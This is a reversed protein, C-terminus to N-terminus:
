SSSRNSKEQLKQRKLLREKIGKSDIWFDKGNFVDHIEQETLFYKLSKKFFEKYIKDHFDVSWKLENGKGEPGGSYWHIMMSANDGVELISGALFIFTAASNCIGDIRTTIEALSEEIINTLTLATNMYGGCSNVHIKIVDDVKAKNLLDILEVYKHVEEIDNFLYVTYEKTTKEETIISCFENESKEKKTDAM